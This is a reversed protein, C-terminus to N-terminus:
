APQEAAEGATSPKSVTKPPGAYRETLTQVIAYLAPVVLVALVTSVLMGGFVVTGVSQKSAAGAGSAILLPVVGLIFAFSTMLIPRLRQVAADRAAEAIGMGAERNAKAFEVILIANKASLGVLTVVGIQGYVNFDLGRLMLALLAGLVGFPVALLVAVPISWSEYLAALFLFVVLVSLAMVVAAANGTEVEERTVGAWEYGYGAPLVKAATRELAALAEGSSYGPAPAGTIDASGYLNYRSTFRPAAGKEISVVASLPVMQGTTRSKVNILGLAAIDERYTADSQLMVKYNKGYRTFDNVQSGGLLIQLTQYVDTLALGLQKARERDVTLQYNPTGANFSSSIRGIEPQQSAEAIFARTMDALDQSSQGARAQLMMSFGSSAGFGPLAPPGFGFIMAQPTIYGLMNAKQITAAASTEAGREHWPALKAVMLGASPTATGSLVDFGSIAMVSEVGPLAGLKGSFDKLVENTRQSNSAEPLLAQVFVAGVDEDPVFGTPTVRFLLVVGGIALLLFVAVRKLSSTTMGIFRGYKETMRDFWANFRAFFRDLWGTGPEEPRPKLLLACLAPTLTLAVVSSFLTSVAITLAFQKYLQGSVGPIFAMPVFVAAVVLTTAVIPASVEDMALRTAEVPSLREHLMKHEVMEVVVIADDVVIGIALVMGFLSLTNISFGLAQYAILTALLSVPVALMPILTARWSQLFVFVVLLVLILADRLTHQVETISEEVFTSSDYVIEYDFDPPFSAKMDELRAKLEEATAMANAGPSLAVGIAAAPKGNLSAEQAYGKAGLEVRAVDRIRVQSGDPGTRLVINEFQSADNIRGQLELSYQFGSPTATPPQGVAGPAAQANQERVAAVVDMPTLGLAALRDPKLWVRMAFPSGYVAVDGVGQVRKLDDVILNDLYNSIFTRDYAGGPSHFAVYMLTDSSAKRVTVGINNVEAPLQPLVQSVRNQTEVAAIDPDTELSFQVTVVSSGDASSVAKISKMGTVGNIQSDLPATVGDEVVLASAGPYLSTIRVTPPAIEPYQAVPLGTLSLVGALSLILAIVIAFVPRDIFFRAM